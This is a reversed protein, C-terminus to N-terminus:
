LHCHLILDGVHDCQPFSTPSTCHGLNNCSQATFKCDRQGGPFLNAFVSTPSMLAFKSQKIAIPQCATQM